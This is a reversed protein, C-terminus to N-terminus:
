LRFSATCPVTPLPLSFAAATSTSTKKSVQRSGSTAAMKLSDLWPLLRFDLPQDRLRLTNGSARHAEAPDRGSEIAEQLHSQLEEDIEDNLRDGRRLTNAIRSWISM